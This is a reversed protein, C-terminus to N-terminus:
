GASMDRFEIPLFVSPSKSHRQIGLVSVLLNHQELAKCKGYLCLCGGCVQVPEGLTYGYPM